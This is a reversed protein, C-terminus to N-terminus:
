DFCFFPSSPVHQQLKSMLWELSDAPAAKGDEQVAASVDALLSRAVVLAASLKPDVTITSRGAGNGNVDKKQDFSGPDASFVAAVTSALQDALVIRSKGTSNAGQM